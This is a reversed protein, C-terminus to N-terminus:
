QAPSQLGDPFAREILYRPMSKRLTGLVEPLAVVVLRQFRHAHALRYLADATEAAFRDEALRHWDTDEVASRQPGLRV